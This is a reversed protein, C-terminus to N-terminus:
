SPSVRVAPAGVMQGVGSKAGLYLVGILASGIGGVWGSIKLYGNKKENMGTRIGVWAAAGTVTLVALAEIFGPIGTYGSFMFDPESPTAPNPPAAMSKVGVAYVRGLGANLSVPKYGVM